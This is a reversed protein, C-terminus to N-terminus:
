AAERPYLDPRMEHRTVAGGSKAEIELVRKSPVQKWQYPATRQIGLAEALAARTGFAKVAAKVGRTLDPM